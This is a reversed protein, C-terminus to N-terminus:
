EELANQLWNLAPSLTAIAYEVALERTTGSGICLGDFDSEDTNLWVEWLPEGENGHIVMKYGEIDLQEAM